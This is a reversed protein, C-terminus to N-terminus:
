RSRRAAERYQAYLTEVIKRIQAGRDAWDVVPREKMLAAHADQEKQIERRQDKERKYQPWSMMYNRRAELAQSDVVINAKAQASTYGAHVVAKDREDLTALLEDCLKQGLKYAEAGATPKKAAEDLLDERLFTLNQRIDSPIKQDLPALAWELANPAQESLVEILTQKPAPTAAPAVAAPASAPVMPIKAEDIVAGSPGKLKGTASPSTPDPLYVGRFSMLDATFALTMGTKLDVVSPQGPNRHFQLHVTRGDVVWWYWTHHDTPNSITGDSHFTLTTRWMGDRGDRAWLWKNAVLTKGLVIGAPDAADAPPLLICALLGALAVSALPIARSLLHRISKMSPM